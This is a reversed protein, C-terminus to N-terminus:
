VAIEAVEQVLRGGSEWERTCYLVWDSLDLTKIVTSFYEAMGNSVQGTELCYAAKLQDSTLSALRPKDEARIDVQTGNRINFTVYEIHYVPKGSRLFPEYARCGNYTACEENVAFEMSSGVQGLIGLANKLGMAMGYKHAEDALKQVFAASDQSTLGFGGKTDDEYGDVNDPDIGDCGKDSALKIRATMIEFVDPNRIDLWKEGPWGKLQTGMYQPNFKTIDPRWSESSGASFYCIVKKGESQIQRIAATTTEFLDVDFITASGAQSSGINGQSGVGRSLNIQFRDGPSPQWKVARKSLNNPNSNSLTAPIALAITGFGSVIVAARMNPATLDCVLSWASYIAKICVFIFTPKICNSIKHFYLASFVQHSISRPSGRRM